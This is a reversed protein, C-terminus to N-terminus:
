QNDVWKIAAGFLNGDLDPFALCYPKKRSESHIIVGDKYINLDFVKEIRITFSKAHSTFIFRKSTVILSGTAEIIDEEITESYGKFGGVRYSVGKAIRFSVGRSGGVYQRRKKVGMLNANIKLCAIENKQLRVGDVDILEFNGDVISQAQFLSELEEISRYALGTHIDLTEALWKASELEDQTVINDELIADILSSFIANKRHDAMQWKADTKAAVIELREEQTLLGDEAAAELVEVYKRRSDAKQALSKTSAKARSKIADLLIRRLKM